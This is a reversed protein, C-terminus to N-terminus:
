FIVFISRFYFFYNGTTQPDLATISAIISSEAIEGNTDNIEFNTGFDCFVSGFVGFSNSSIFYISNEHCFQSYQLQLEISTNILVVVSFSKLDNLNVEREQYIRVSVYPNLEQFKERIVNLRNDNINKENLYFNIGINTNVSNTTNNSQNNSQNDSDYLTVSKVGSLIINKIIELSLGNLGYIFLSSSSMKKQAEHGYVYLQRSYLGEDIEQEEQEEGRGQGQGQVEENETVVEMNLNEM